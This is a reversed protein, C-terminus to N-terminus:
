MTPTTVSMAAGSTQSVCLKLTPPLTGSPWQLQRDSLGAGVMLQIGVGGWCATDKFCHGSWCCSFFGCLGPRRRKLGPAAIRGVVRRNQRHVPLAVEGRHEVTNVAARQGNAHAAAIAVDAQEFVARQELGCRHVAKQREVGVTTDERGFGADCECLNKVEGDRAAEEKGDRRSGLVDREAAGDGVVDVALVVFGGAREAVM